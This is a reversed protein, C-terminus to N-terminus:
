VNLNEAMWVQNGIKVAKIQQGFGKNSLIIAIVFLIVHRKM